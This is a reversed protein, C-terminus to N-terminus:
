SERAVAKNEKYLQYNYTIKGKIIVAESIQKLLFYNVGRCCVTRTMQSVGLICELRSDIAMRLASELEQTVLRPSNNNLYLSYNSSTGGDKLLMAIFLHISEYGISSFTALKSVTKLKGVVRYIRKGQYNEAVDPAVVPLERWEELRVPLRM